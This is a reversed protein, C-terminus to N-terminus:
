IWLLVYPVVTNLIQFTAKFDDSKMYPKLVFDSKEIANKM